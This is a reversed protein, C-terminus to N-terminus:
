VVTGLLVLKLVLLKLAGQSAPSTTPEFGVLDVMKKNGWLKTDTRRGQFRSPYCGDDSASGM